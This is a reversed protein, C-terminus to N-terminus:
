PRSVDDNTLKKASNNPIEKVTRLVKNLGRHPAFLDAAENASNLGKYILDNHLEINRFKQDFIHQQEARYRDVKAQKQETIQKVRDRATNVDYGSKHARALDSQASKLERDYLDNIKKVEIYEAESRTKNAQEHTAVINASNVGIDSALKQGQYETNLLNASNQARQMAPPNVAMDTLKGISSLDAKEMKAAQVAGSSGSPTSAGGQTYALIPNLGSSKMDDMARQYASNSMKEQFAMQERANAQSMENAQQAIEKNAKNTKRTNYIDALGQVTTGIGYALNTNDGGRPTEESMTQVGQPAPSSDGGGFLKKFFNM